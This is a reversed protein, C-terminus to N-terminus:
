QSMSNLAIGILLNWTLFLKSTLSLLIYSIENGYFSNLFRIWRIYHFTMVLGFALFQFFLGIIITYVFWPVVKDVPRPSTIAAFFYAIIPIWQAVFLIYGSILAVYNTPRNTNKPTWRKNSIEMLYGQLQLGVNGLVLTVLLFINTIGSLQAITWVMLSATISYEIWRLPNRGEMLTWKNYYQRVIPSWAILAHFAATILPFPLIFWVLQYYGLSQLYVTFPGAEVPGTANQNYKVFDTTVERQVSTSLFILAVVLAAVFSLAHVIAAAINWRRLKEAKNM